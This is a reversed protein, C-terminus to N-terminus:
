PADEILKKQEPDERSILALREKTYLMAIVCVMLILVFEFQSFFHGFLFCELLGTLAVSVAIAFAGAIASIYSSIASGSLFAFWMTVTVVCTWHNWGAFFGERWLRHRDETRSHVVMVVLLLEIVHQYLLKVSVPVHKAQRQMFRQALLSGCAGTGVSLLCATLGAAQATMGLVTHIEVLNMSPHKHVVVPHGGLTVSPIHHRQPHPSSPAHVSYQFLAVCLVQACILVWARTSPRVAFLLVEGLAIGVMTLQKLVVFTSPYIYQLSYTELLTTSTIFVAYFLCPGMSSSAARIAKIGPGIGLAMCTQGTYFIAQMAFPFVLVTEFLFPFGEQSGGRAVMLLVSISSKVVTFTALLLGSCTLGLPLAEMGMEGVGLGM